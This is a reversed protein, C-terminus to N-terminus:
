DAGDAWVDGGPGDPRRRPLAVPAQETAVEILHHIRRRVAQPDGGSRCEAAAAEVIRRWVRRRAEPDSFRANVRPRAAALLDLLGAYRPGILGAVLDRLYVALAPSKGATSVAVTVDGQRHVAPAIFHCHEVDDVANLLVGRAQAEVWIRHNVTRDDTAAIALTAGALDGPQYARRRLWIRGEAAWDELTPTLEPAVVHVRAGAELLGKVKGEAVPGGGIVVCPRGQLNLFAPYFAAM